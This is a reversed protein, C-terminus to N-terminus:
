AAASATSSRVRIWMVARRTHNDIEWAEGYALIKVLTSALGAAYAAMLVARHRLDTTVTFLRVLEDHNLIQPLTSPVKTGPVFFHPDPLGGSAKGNVCAGSWTFPEYKGANGANWVQCPQNEVISWNPGSPELPAAGTSEAGGGDCKIQEREFHGVCAQAQERFIPLCEAYKENRTNSAFDTNERCLAIKRKVAELCQQRQAPLDTYFM